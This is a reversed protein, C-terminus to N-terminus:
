IDFIMIDRLVGEYGKMDRLIGEYGKIDRLIGEYGIIGDTLGGRYSLCRNMQSVM